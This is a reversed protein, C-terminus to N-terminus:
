SPKVGAVTLQPQELREPAPRTEIGSEAIWRQMEDAEAPTAFGILKRGYDRKWGAWSYWRDPGGGIRDAEAKWEAADASRFPEDRRLKAVFPFARTKLEHSNWSRKPM